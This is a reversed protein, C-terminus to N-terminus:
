VVFPMAVHVHRCALKAGRGSKVGIQASKEKRTNLLPLVPQGTWSLWRGIPDCVARGEGRLTSGAPGGIM